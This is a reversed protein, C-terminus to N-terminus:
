RGVTLGTRVFELEDDGPPSASVTEVCVIVPADPRIGPLCRIGLYLILFTITGAIYKM